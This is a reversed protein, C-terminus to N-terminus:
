RAKKSVLQRADETVLAAGELDGGDAMERAAALLEDFVQRDDPALRPRAAALRDMRAALSDALAGVFLMSAVVMSDAGSTLTDRAATASPPEPALGQAPARDVCLALAVALRVRRRM